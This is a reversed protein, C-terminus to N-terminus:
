GGITKMSDRTQSNPADTKDQSVPMKEVVLADDRVGVIHVLAGTPIQNGEDTVASLEAFREQLTLTIKGAGGGAPPIPIYVHATQGVANDLQLNGSESLRVTLQIIKAVGFMAALGLGFGIVVSLAGSLGGQYLVISSWGFVTFFSIVSGMSFLRLADPDVSQMVSDTMSSDAQAPVFGLDASEAGGLGDMHMGGADLGGASGADPAGAHGFGIVTLLVQIALVATAPVAILHLVRLLTDLSEWWTQLNM